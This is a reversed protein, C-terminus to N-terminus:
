LRGTSARQDVIILVGAGEVSTANSEARCLRATLLLCSLPQKNLTCKGGAVKRGIINLLNYIFDIFDAVLSKALLFIQNAPYIFVEEFFECYIGGFFFTFKIRGVIHNLQNSGHDFGKITREVIRAAAGASHKNM